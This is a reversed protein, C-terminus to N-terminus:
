QSPHDALGVDHLRKPGAISRISNTLSPDDCCLELLLPSVDFSVVSQWNDRHERPMWVNRRRMRCRWRVLRKALGEFQKSGIRCLLASALCVKMIQVKNIQRDAQPALVARDAGDVM